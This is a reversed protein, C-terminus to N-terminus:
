PNRKGVQGKGRFLIVAVLALTAGATDIAVDLARGERAPVFLQHVEDSAAYLVAIVLPVLYRTWRRAGTTGEHARVLLLALAGFEAMHAMKRLMLDPLPHPAQLGPISSMYFIIGMWILVPLWLVAYRAVPNRPPLLGGHYSDRAADRGSTTQRQTGAQKISPQGQPGENM